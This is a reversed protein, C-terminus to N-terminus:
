IVKTSRYNEELKIVTADKYDKEFDLINQINAGRFGYISQNEDGVVCINKYKQAIKNVIQYQINNTDQYEDVMIYRFKEQVKTLIEENDLLKNTNVLIDSFDM